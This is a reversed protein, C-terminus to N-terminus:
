GGARTEAVNEFRVLLSLNSLLPVESQYKVEIIAKSGVRKVKLKKYDFAKHSGDLYLQAQMKRIVYARTITSPDVDLLSRNMANQVNHNTSYIPVLQMGVYASFGLVCMVFMASWFTWGGQRSFKKINQKAVMSQKFKSM